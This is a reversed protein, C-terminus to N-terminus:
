HELSPCEEKAGKDGIMKRADELIPHKSEEM